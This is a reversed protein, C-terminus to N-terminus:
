EVYMDYTIGGSQTGAPYYVPGSPDWYEVTPKATWWAERLRHGNVVM